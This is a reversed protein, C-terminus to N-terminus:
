RDPELLACPTRGGSSQPRRQTCDSVLDVSPIDAGRQEDQQRPQAIKISAATLGAGRARGISRARWRSPKRVARRRTAALKILCIRLSCATSPRRPRGRYRNPRARTAPASRACEERPASRRVSAPHIKARLTAVVDDCDGYGHASERAERGAGVQLRQQPLRAWTDGVRARREAREDGHLNREGHNLREDRHQDSRENHFRCRTSGPKECAFM